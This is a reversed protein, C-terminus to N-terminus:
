EAKKRKGRKSVKKTLRDVAFSRYEKTEQIGNITGGIVNAWLANGDADVRVSLFTFTGGEGIIGCIDGANWECYSDEEIVGKSRMQARVADASEQEIVQKSKAM